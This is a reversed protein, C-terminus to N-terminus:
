NALASMGLFNSINKEVVECIIVDAESNLIESKSFYYAWNYTSKYFSDKFFGTLAISYSDRLMYMSPASSNFDNRWKFYYLHDSYGNPWQYTFAFQGWRDRPQSGAFAATEGNKLTYVPGIESTADYYGLYYTQDKMYTECYNIQYDSRTHMVVNPFDKQIEKMVQQYVEFGGHNNWHTDTKYYLLRAPNANKAALLSERGDIVNIGADRLANIVQDMRRYSGLTYGEPMYDSYVSSKNPVFVIYMKKGVSEVWENRTVMNNVLIKLRDSVYLSTGDFDAFTDGCFLFGDYGVLTTSYDQPGNVLLGPYFKKIVPRNYSAYPDPTYNAKMQMYPLANSTDEYELSPADAYTHVRGGTPTAIGDVVLSPDVGSTEEPKTEAETVKETVRETVKETVKETAKESDSETETASESESGTEDESETESSSEKESETETDTAIESETETGSVDVPEEPKESCAALVILLLTLFVAAFLKILKSSKM